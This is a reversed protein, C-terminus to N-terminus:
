LNFIQFNVRETYCTQKEKQLIKKECKPLLRTRMEFRMVDLFFGGNRYLILAEHSM